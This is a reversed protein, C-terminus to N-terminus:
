GGPNTVSNSYATMTPLQTDLSRQRGILTGSSDNRLSYFSGNASRPPPIEGLSLGDNGNYDDNNADADGLYDLDFNVGSNLKAISNDFKGNSQDNPPKTGGIRGDDTKSRHFIHSMRKFQKELKKETSNNDNNSVTRRKELKQKHGEMGRGNNTTSTSLSSVASERSLSASSRRNKLSSM